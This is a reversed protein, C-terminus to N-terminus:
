SKAPDQTPGSINKSKGWKKEVRERFERDRETGKWETGADRVIFECVNLEVLFFRALARLELRDLEFRIMRVRDLIVYKGNEVSFEFKSQVSGSM